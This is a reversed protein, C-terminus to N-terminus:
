GRMRVTARSTPIAFLSSSIADADINTTTNYNTGVSVTNGAELSAGDAVTTTTENRVDIESFAESIGVVGGSGSRVRTDGVDESDALVTVKGFKSLVNAGSKIEVQNDSLIDVDARQLGVGIISFSDGLATAKGANRSKSAIVVDGVNATLQANGISTGVNAQPKARAWSGQVGLLISGGSSTAEANAQGVAATGDSKEINHLSQLTINDAVLVALDGITTDVTPDITATGGSLGITVGAAGNQGVAIAEATHDTTSTVHIDGDVYIETDGLIRADVDTDIISDAVSGAVAIGIGGALAPAKTRAKTVTSSATVELGGLTSEITGDAAVEGMTTSVVQAQVDGGLEATAGSFGVALGGSVTAANGIVEVNRVHSADVSVGTAGTLTVGSGISAIQSSSVDAESYQAGLTFTISAAAAVADMNITETASADVTVAGDVHVIANDDIFAETVTGVSLLTVSAGFGNSGAIAVSGADSEYEVTETATVSLDGGVTIVAFEGIYAAVDEASRDITGPRDISVENAKLGDRVKKPQQGPSFGDSDNAGSAMDDVSNMVDDDVASIIGGSSTGSGISAVVFTGTFGVGLGFSLGGAFTGMDKTSDAVVSVDSVAAVRASSGIHADVTNQVDLFALNGAVGAPGGGAALGGEFIANDVYDVAKVSVTQNTGSLNTNQNVEAQRSDGEIVARTVGRSVYFVFVGNFAGKVGVAGSLAVARNNLFSNAHVQTAGSANTHANVMRAENINNNFVIIATAGASASGIAAAGTFRTMNLRDVADVSLDGTTNVDIDSITAKNESNLTVVDISGAGSVKLSFSVGVVGTDFESRSYSAVDVDGASYVAQRGGGTADSTDTDSMWARTDNSVFLGGAAVGVSA